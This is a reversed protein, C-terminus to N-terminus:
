LKLVQQNENDPDIVESLSVFRYYALETMKIQM